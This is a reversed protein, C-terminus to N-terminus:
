SKRALIEVDCPIELGNTQLIKAADRKTIVLSADFTLDPNDSISIEDGEELRNKWSINTTMGKELLQVVVGNMNGVVLWCDGSDDGYTLYARSNGNLLELQRAIEEKSPDLFRESVEDYLDFVKLKDPKM